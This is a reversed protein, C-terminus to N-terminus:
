KYKYLEEVAEYYDYPDHGDVWNYYHELTDLLNEAANYYQKYAKLERQLEVNTSCSALVITSAVLVLLKKM